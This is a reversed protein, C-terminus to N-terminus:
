FHRRGTQVPRELAAFVEDSGNSLEDIQLKPPRKVAPPTQDPPQIGNAIFADDEGLALRGV